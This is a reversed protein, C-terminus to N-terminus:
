VPIPYKPICKGQAPEFVDIYEESKPQIFKGNIFNALQEM